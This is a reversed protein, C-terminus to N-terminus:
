QGLLLEKQRLYEAETIAGRERLHFLQELRDYKSQNTQPSPPVTERITVDNRINLDMTPNKTSGFDGIRGYSTVKGNEIHVFYEKPWDSM